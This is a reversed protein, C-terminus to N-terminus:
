QTAGSTAVKKQAAIRDLEAALQPPSYAVQAQIQTGDEAYFSPAL